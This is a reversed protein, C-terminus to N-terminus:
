SCCIKITARSSLRPLPADPAATCFRFRISPTSSALPSCTQFCGPAAAHWGRAFSRLALLLVDACLSSKRLVRRLACRRSKHPLYAAQRTPAHGTRIFARSHPAVTKRRQGPRRLSTRNRVLVADAGSRPYAQSRGSSCAQHALARRRCGAGRSCCRSDRRFRCERPSGKPLM